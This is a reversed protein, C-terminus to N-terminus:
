RNMFDILKEQLSKLEEDSINLSEAIGDFLDADALTIRAAELLTILESASFNFAPSEKIEDSYVLAGCKLCQGSPFVEGPEVRDLVDDIHQPPQKDTYENCNWCYYKM